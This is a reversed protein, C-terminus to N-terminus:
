IPFNDLSDYDRHIRNHIQLVRGVPSHRVALIRVAIDVRCVFNISPFFTGAIVAGNSDFVEVNRRQLRPPRPDM